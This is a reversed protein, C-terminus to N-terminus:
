LQPIFGLEKSITQSCRGWFDESRIRTKSQASQKVEPLEKVWLCFLRGIEIPDPSSGATVYRHLANIHSYHQIKLIKSINNMIQILSDIISKKERAFCFVSFCQIFSIM